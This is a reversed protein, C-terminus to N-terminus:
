LCNAGEELLAERHDISDEGEIEPIRHMGPGIVRRQV